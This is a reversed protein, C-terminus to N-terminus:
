AMIPWESFSKWYFPLLIDVDTKRNSVRVYPETYSPLSKMLGLYSRFLSNLYSEVVMLLDKLGSSLNEMSIESYLEQVKMKSLDKLDNFGKNVIRLYDGIRQVVQLNGAEKYLASIQSSVEELKEAKFTNLFEEARQIYFKISNVMDQFVKEVRLNEWRQMAQKIQNNASKMASRLDKLIKKGSVVKTTGPLTLEIKNINGSVTDAITEMLNFFRTTAREIIKSISQRIRDYMEQGTLKEELGPLHFKTNRLFKLAADLLVRMNSEYRQLLENASSFFRRSFEQLDIQPLKALIKNWVKKGEQKLQKVSSQLNEIVRPIELHVKDVGNSLANKMKLGAQSLDMGLHEIHYQNIFKQLTELITPVREKLGNIMDSLVSIQYGVQVNLKESNKLTMKLSMLDTDKDPTSLYRTFLKAHIQSPSRRTFQFGIFGSSPLSVSSTIGNSHSAYRVSMDTFTRSSIDIGITHRSPSFNQQLDQKWVINVDRHNFTSKGDVGLEGNELLIKAIVDLNYELFSMTSTSSSKFTCVTGEETNEVTGTWTNNYITSSIKVTSSLAGFAPIFVSAPLHLSIEPVDIKQEPIIITPLEFHYLTNTIDDLRIPYDGIDFAKPLDFSSITIEYPPLSVFLHAMKDKLYKTKANISPIEVTPLGPLNIDFSPTSIENPIELNTLDFVFTPVQLTTFPVTFEPVSIAAPISIYDPLDPEEFRMDVEKIFKPITKIWDPVGVTLQPINFTVGNEFLKTPLEFLIGENSKTYKVVTSVNLFQLHESSTADGFKFMDWLSRQYVPLKISKLFAAEGEISESFEMTIQSQDNSLIIDSSHILTGLTEKGSWHLKQKESTM